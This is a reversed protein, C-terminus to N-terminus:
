PSADLLVARLKQLAWDAVATDLKLALLDQVDVHRDEWSYRGSEYPYLVSALFHAQDARRPDEPEPHLFFTRIAPPEEGLVGAAEFDLVHVDGGDDAIFNAIKADGLYLGARHVREMTAWCRELHEVTLEGQLKKVLLTTGPLHELALIVKRPADFADVLAPAVDALGRARLRRYFVLERRLFDCGDTGDPQVQGRYYGVKLVVQRFEESAFDLALFVGCKGQQVLAEFVPYRLLFARVEEPEPVPTAYAALADTVGEPVAAGADYRNDQTKTTGLELLDGRYSGYRYYLPLDAGFPRACPVAPTQGRFPALAEKLRDILRADPEVLYIVVGKGIQTYGFSGANLKRLLKITKIYKFHTGARILPPSLRALTEAANLLTLPVYLKWGQTAPPPPGCAYWHESEVFQGDGLLKRPHPIEAVAAPAGRM